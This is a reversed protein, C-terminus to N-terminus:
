YMKKVKMLQPLEGEFQALRYQIGHLILSNDENCEFDATQIMHRIHNRWVKFALAEVHDSLGCLFLFRMQEQFLVENRNFASPKTFKNPLYEWDIPQEPFHM